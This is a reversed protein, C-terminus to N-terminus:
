RGRPKEQQRFVSPRVPSAERRLREAASRVDDASITVIKPNKDKVEAAAKEYSTIFFEISERLIKMAYSLDNEAVNLRVEAMAAQDAHSVINRVQGLNYYAYLVNQLTALSSCATHGGIKKPDQNEVSQARMVALALARNEERSGRLKASGRDYTKVFYHNIDEMKYFEYPKMELRQLALLRTVEPAKAEDDCYYFIGSTVLETPAFSEILTLVQQYLQHQYAWKILEILSFNGDNELLSGYDAQICGAIIGFLMGYDGIETWSRDDRFLRLLQQIGEKIELVNCMSIGTDVHRAAYILRSIRPDHAGSKEWFDVLMDTKSYNLFAHAAAVLDASYSAVTGDVIKGTLNGSPDSVQYIKKLHVGSGPTSALINLTNLIVHSEAAGDNRLSLFLNIEERDDGSPNSERQLVSNMWYERKELMNFPIIRVGVKENVQLAELKASDKLQTYLYHHVWQMTRRSDKGAEPFAAFLADTFRDYLPRSGALEDFFRNLRKNERTSHEEQFSRIFEVIRGREAEPLLTERAKGAESTENLYENIRSQYLELVPRLEEGGIALIEDIPYRALVLRTIAEMDTVAECYDCGYENQASFYRLEPDSELADMSVLLINRTM